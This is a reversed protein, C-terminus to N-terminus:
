AVGRVHEVVPAGRAPLLVGIVDIRVGGPPPGGHHELWREALRRLRATKAARVAAMPHEYASARRTKVECVVLADGDTAVIDIEGDRCRWNRQLIQMGAEILRRAALDEGYRGLARRPDTTRAPTRTRGTDGGM